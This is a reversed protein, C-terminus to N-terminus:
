RFAQLATQLSQATFANEAAFNIGYCGCVRCACEQEEVIM